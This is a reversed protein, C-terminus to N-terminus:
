LVITAASLFPESIRGDQRAIRGYYWVKQGAAVVYPSAFSKPTDQGNSVAGCRKWPGNFYNRTSLQPQGQFVYLMGPVDAWWPLAVSFSCAILQTAATAVCHFTSDTEPLSLTGPGADRYTGLQINWLINSRIYHNFGTLYVTEGLRNKMAVAAAYTNWYGRQTATLVTHWRNTLDAFTNRVLNQATSKPNVPKTRARMYNGFRNRGHTNGAISGSITIIGGGYKVSAM